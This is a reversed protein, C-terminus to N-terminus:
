RKPIDSLVGDDCAHSGLKVESEAFQIQSSGVNGHPGVSLTAIDRAQFESNRITGESSEVALAAMRKKSTSM